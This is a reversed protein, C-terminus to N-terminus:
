RVPDLEIGYPFPGQVIVDPGCESVVSPLTVVTAWEVTRGAAVADVIVFETRGDIEVFVTYDRREDDLNTITGEVQARRGDIECETVETSLRGPEAYAVVENLVM